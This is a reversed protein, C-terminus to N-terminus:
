LLDTSLSTIKVNKDISATRASM